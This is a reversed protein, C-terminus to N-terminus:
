DTILTVPAAACAPLAQNKRDTAVLSLESQKVPRTGERHEGGLQVLWFCRGAFACRTADQGSAQVGMVLSREANLFLPERGGMGWPTGVWWASFVWKMGVNEWLSFNKTGTIILYLGGGVSPKVIWELEQLVEIEWGWAGNPEMTLGVLIM